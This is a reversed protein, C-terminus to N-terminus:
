EAEKRRWEQTKNNRGNALYDKAVRIQNEYYAIFERVAEETAHPGRERYGNAMVPGIFFVKEESARGIGMCNDFGLERVVTLEHGDRDPIMSV